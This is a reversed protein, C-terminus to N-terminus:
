LIAWILFSAVFGATLSFTGASSGTDSPNVSPSASPKASPTSSSQNVTPSVSPSSSPTSSNGFIAVNDMNGFTPTSSSQNVTPSVSPSSSPTSSNGFIAVNDMNGFTTVTDTTKFCECADNYDTQGGFAYILETGSYGVAAFRFRHNPFVSAQKWEDAGETYSEVLDTGVTVESVALEGVLECIGEIQREGGLSYLHDDLEVLASDGRADILPPLNTWTDSAFEYREVTGLPDCFNNEHTFGGSVFAFEGDDATVGSTDGRAELLPGVKDIVLTGGATSAAADIRFVTTLATYTGDYGGVVYVHPSKIFSTQDSVQYESDEPLIL